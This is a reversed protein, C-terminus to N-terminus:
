NPSLRRIGIALGILSAAIIALFSVLLTNLLGVGFARGYSHTPDYDILKESIDFGAEQGFYSFGITIARSELNHVLNHIAYGALTGILLLLAIQYFVNRLRESSWM